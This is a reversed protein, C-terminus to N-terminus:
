GPWAKWGRALGGGQLEARGSGRCM